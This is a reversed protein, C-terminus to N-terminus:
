VVTKPGNWGEALLAQGRKRWRFNEQSSADTKMRIGPLVGPKTQGAGDMRWSLDRGPIKALLADTLEAQSKFWTEVEKDKLNELWRYPDKYTKGFYTDEADVTKTAPYNWQADCPLVFSLVPLVLAILNKM